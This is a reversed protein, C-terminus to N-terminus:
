LYKLWDAAAKEPPQDLNLTAVFRGRRDMLYAITSHDVTYDGSPQPVKRAYAKFSKMVVAIEEPTGTLGIVRQDFSGLYNTMIDRTDREPDVSIFLAKLGAGRPGAADLVQSIQMLATPCADPCHTFGFFVVYPAGVMQKDSLTGGRSSQLLFPGGVAGANGSDRPSLTVITAAVLTAFGMAFLLMFPWLTRLRSAFASTNPSTMIIWDSGFASLFLPCHCFHPRRHFAA